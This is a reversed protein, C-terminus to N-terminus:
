LEENHEGIVKYEVELIKINSKIFEHKRSSYNFVKYLSTNKIALKCGLLTNYTKAEEIDKCFSHAKGTYYGWESEIIYKIM